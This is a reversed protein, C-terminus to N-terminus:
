SRKKYICYILIYVRAHVTPVVFGLKNDNNKNLSVPIHRKIGGQLEINAMLYKTATSFTTINVNVFLTYFTDIIIIIIIVIIIIIIIIIIITM